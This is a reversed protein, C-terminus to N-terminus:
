LDSGSDKTPGVGLWFGGLLFDLGPVNVYVPRLWCELGSCGSVTFEVPTSCGKPIRLLRWTCPTVLPNVSVKATFADCPAIMQAKSGSAGAFNIVLTEAGVVGILHFSPYVFYSLM